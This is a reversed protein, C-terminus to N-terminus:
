PTYTFHFTAKSSTGGATFFEIDLDVNQVSSPKLVVVSLSGEVSLDLDVNGMTASVAKTYVTQGKTDTVMLDILDYVNTTGGILAATYDQTSIPLAGSQIATVSTLCCHASYLEIWQGTKPMSAAKIVNGPIARGMGDVRQYCKLKSNM